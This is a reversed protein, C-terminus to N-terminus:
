EKSSLVLVNFAQWVLSSFRVRGKSSQSKSLSLFVVTCLIAARQDHQFIKM